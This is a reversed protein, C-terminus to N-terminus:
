ISPVMPANAMCELVQAKTGTHGKGHIVHMM